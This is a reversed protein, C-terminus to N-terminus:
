WVLGAYVLEKNLSIGELLIVEGVLRDYRDTELVRVEVEKRFALDSTVWKATTGFPQGIEPCDIGHLRVKVAKGKRMFSITDGESVGVVKGTFSQPRNAQFFLPISLFLLVFLFLIKCNARRM